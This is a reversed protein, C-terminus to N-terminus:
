RGGIGPINSSKVKKDLCVSLFKYFKLVDIFKIFFIVSKKHVIIKIVGMETKEWTAAGGVPCSMVEM